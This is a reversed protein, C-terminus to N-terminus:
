GPSEREIAEETALWEAEALSILRAVEARRKLADALSAGAIAAGIGSTGGSILVVRGSFSGEQFTTAIM